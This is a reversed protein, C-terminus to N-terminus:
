KNLKKAPVIKPVEKSLQRLRATAEIKEKVPRAAQQRRWEEKMKLLGSVDPYNKM